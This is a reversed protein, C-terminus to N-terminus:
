TLNLVFHVPFLLVWATTIMTIIVHQLIKYIIKLIKEVLTLVVKFFFQAANSLKSLCLFIRNESKNKSRSTFTLKPFLITEHTARILAFTNNLIHEM